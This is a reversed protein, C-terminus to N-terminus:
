GSSPLIPSAAATLYEPQYTSDFFPARREGPPPPPPPPDNALSPCSSTQLLNCHQQTACAQASRCLNVRQSPGPPALSWPGPRAPMCARAWAIIAGRSYWACWKAICALAVATSAQCSICSPRGHCCEGQMAKPMTQFVAPDVRTPIKPSSSRGLGLAVSQASMSSPSPLMVACKSIHIHLTVTPACLHFRALAAVRMDDSVTALRKM